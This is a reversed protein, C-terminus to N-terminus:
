NLRTASDFPNSGNVKQIRRAGRGIDNNTSDAYGDYTEEKYHQPGPYRPFTNESDDYLLNMTEEESIPNNIKTGLKSKRPGIHRVSSKRSFSEGLRRLAVESELLSSRPLGYLDDEDSQNKTSYLISEEDLIHESQNEDSSSSWKRLEHVKQLSTSHLTGQRGRNRMGHFSEMDEEYVDDPPNAFWLPLAWSAMSLMSFIFASWILSFWIEGLHLSVGFDTLNKSVERRVQILIRTMIGCVIAISIFSAISLLSVVNLFIKSAGSLDRSDGRKLYLFYTLILIATQSSACFILASPALKVKNRRAAVKKDYKKDEVDSSQFAYALISELGIDQLDKRYDFVYRSNTRQCVLVDDHKKYKLVGYKDYYLTTNYNGYCWSWLSSLIYQPADAVQSEAYETLIAIESNTLSSDVPLQSTELEDLVSPNLSVSNRLSKYLGYSVDLHACNIRAAYLQHIFLPGVVATITLAIVACGMLIRFIQLLRGQPSLNQFPSILGKTHNLM